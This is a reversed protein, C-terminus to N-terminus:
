NTNKKVNKGDDKGEITPKSHNLFFITLEDMYPLMFFPDDFSSLWEDFTENINAAVYFLQAMKLMDSKSTADYIDVILNANFKNNYDKMLRGNCELTYEKNNLTIKM